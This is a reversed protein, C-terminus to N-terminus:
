IVKVTGRTLHRWVSDISLEYLEVVLLNRLQRPTVWEGTVFIILEIIKWYNIRQRPM